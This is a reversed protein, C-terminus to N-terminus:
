EDLGGNAPMQITELTNTKNQDKVIVVLVAQFMRACTKWHVSPSTERQFTGLFPIAPNSLIAPVTENQYITGTKWRPRVLKCEQESLEAHRGLEIAVAGNRPGTNGTLGSQSFDGWKQAGPATEKKATAWKM